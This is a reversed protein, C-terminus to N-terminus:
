AQYGIIITAIKCFAVMLTLTVTPSQFKEGNVVICVILDYLEVKTCAIFSINLM